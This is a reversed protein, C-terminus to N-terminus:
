RPLSYDKKNPKPVAVVLSSKWRSHHISLKVLARVMATFEDPCASFAWKLVKYNLGSLGPASNNSTGRIADEVEMNTVNVFPRSSHPPQSRPFATDEIQVLTPFWPKSLLEVKDESSIAWSSDPKKLSPTISRQIGRYWSNLRWMDTSTNVNATCHM